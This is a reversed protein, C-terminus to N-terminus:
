AARKSPRRSITDYFTSPVIPCGHETLVRCIPGVGFEGRHAAVYDIL